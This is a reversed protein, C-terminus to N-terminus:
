AKASRWPQGKAAELLRTAARDYLTPDGLNMAVMMAGELGSVVAEAGTRQDDVDGLATATWAILYEFFELIERRVPDPLAAGGAGLHGALCMGRGDALGERFLAILRLMAGPEEPPGLQELERQRYRRLLAAVLDAKTPFHYHVSASKVGVEAAIDRFSFGNYGSHRALREAVELIMDRRSAGKGGDGQATAPPNDSAGDTKPRALEAGKEESM